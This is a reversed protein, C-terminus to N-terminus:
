HSTFDFRPPNGDDWTEILLDARDEPHDGALYAAEAPMWETVWKERAGLGDRALGRNLRTEKDATVFIRYGYFPALGSRTTYIGEIVLPIEDPITVWDGMQDLDWDYKQYRVTLGAAAPILVQQRLRDLDFRYGFDGHSPRSGSPQYFDDGEVVVAGIAQALRRAITSKGSGGPGDIGIVVRSKAQRLVGEIQEVLDEM